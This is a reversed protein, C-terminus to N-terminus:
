VILPLAPTDGATGLSFSYLRRGVAREIRAEFPPCCARGGRSILEMLDNRILRNIPPGAHRRGNREFVFVAKPRLGKRNVGRVAPLM